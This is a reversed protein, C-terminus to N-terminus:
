ARLREGGPDYPSEEIVRAPRREGLVPVELDTGPVGLETHLLALALDHGFTASHAGSTVRGVLRGDHYVGEHGLVSAGDTDVALPVIRTPVGAEQQALLAERGVFDGKDLAVFRELGSQLASLEPTLDRRVARYSKELRLPELARLGVLRLGLDEGAALLLELLHRQYGAPHHLEWGLEGTSGVRLLRVDDATGVSGTRLALWPFAETSLDVQTVRSLLDRARPGAVSLCGREHGADRLRVSGDTPAARRLEDLTLRGAGPASVLYFRDQALRAVTHEALVGGQPTLQHGLRVQGPEPLRGALVRDLWAAAGPGEVELRTLCTLDVLGVAERVAAAEDAVHRGLETWRWSPRDRAPVGDRAFWTPVEWGDRVGWVAGRSTLLDYGSATKQPRSAPREEGPYHQLAHTGWAERVKERTWEKTAHEGFRRPDLELVDIDTGGEVILASLHHGIAGAWLIGGPVGEALWVNELGWAPGMLPLEDPTMQFPGRVNSRLGARGLAPVVEVAEQWQDAVADFDEPLLDAGFWSPVGDEAFLQLQDVREYPGYLLATGEERLYGEFREDRLIPLEPRGQQRRQVLEPVEDTIWYQHVIPVAPLDLGVMAGTQRAYNGTALVVHECAVDGRGTRVLWEGSGRRELGLVETGTHVAAGLRRAERALAHTLDAPAVHGDDPHYLGALVQPDDLLPWLERVEVPSLLEARQGQVPAVDLYSRYEDLRDASTAVRLQGCRHWGIDEGTSARLEDYVRISRAIMTGVSRSRAYSPILGAAHWTSGATLETRELLVVDHWGRLALAHLVAAGVVGGGVVVVRASTQM